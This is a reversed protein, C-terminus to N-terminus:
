SRYRLFADKVARTLAHGIHPQSNATPPGECFVLPEGGRMRERVKRLIDQERWSRLMQEELQPFTVGDPEPYYETM